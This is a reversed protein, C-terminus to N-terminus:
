DLALFLSPLGPSRLSRSCILAVFRKSIFGVKIHGGEFEYPYRSDIIFFEEVLDDFKGDLLDAM